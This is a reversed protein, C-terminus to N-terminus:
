DNIELVAGDSIRFVVWRKTIDVNNNAIEINIEDETFRQKGTEDKSIRLPCTVKLNM